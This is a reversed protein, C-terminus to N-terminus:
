KEERYQNNYLDNLAEHLLDDDEKDTQMENLKHELEHVLTVTSGETYYGDEDLWTGLLPHKERFPELLYPEIDIWGRTEGDSRLRSNLMCAYDLAKELDKEPKGKYQYRCIYKIINGELFDANICLAIPQVLAGAKEYYKKDNM